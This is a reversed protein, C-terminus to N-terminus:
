KHRTNASVDTWFNFGHIQKQNVKQSIQGYAEERLLHLENLGYSLNEWFITKWLANMVIVPSADAHKTLDEPLCRWIPSVPSGEACENNLDGSLCLNDLQYSLSVQFITKYLPDM